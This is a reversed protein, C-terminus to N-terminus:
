KAGKCLATRKAPLRDLPPQFICLSLRTQRAHGIGEAEEALAAYDEPKVDTLSGGNGYKQVLAKVQAKYIGKAENAKAALIKRVDEKSYEKAPEPQPAPDPTQAPTEQKKSSKRGSTKKDPVPQEQEDSSYFEKLAMATEALKTGCAILDDLMMSLESMKSM